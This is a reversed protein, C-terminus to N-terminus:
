LLEIQENDGWEDVGFGTGNGEPLLIKNDDETLSIFININDQEVVQDTIDRTYTALEGSNLIIDIILEYSQDQDDTKGFTTIEGQTVGDTDSQYTRSTFEISYLTSVETSSIRKGSALYAGSAFGKLTGQIINANNLNDIAITINCQTTISSPVATLLTSIHNDHASEDCCSCAVMEDTVELTEQRWAAIRGMEQATFEDEQPSYYLDSITNRKNVEAYFENYITSNQFTVGLVDEVADNFLLLSYTGVPLNIYTYDINGSIKLYPSGGDDPYAYLSINSVESLVLNSETWDIDVQIEASNSQSDKTYIHQRHCSFTTSLLLTAYIIYKFFKLMIM